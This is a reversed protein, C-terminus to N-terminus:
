AAGMILLQNEALQRPVGGTRALTPRVCLSGLMTRGGSLLYHSWPKTEKGSGANRGTPSFLLTSLASLGNCANDTPNM